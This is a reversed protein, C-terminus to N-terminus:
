NTDCQKYVKGYGILGTYQDNPGRGFVETGNREEYDVRYAPDDMFSLLKEFAPLFQKCGCIIKTEYVM